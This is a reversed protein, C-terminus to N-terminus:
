LVQASTALLDSHMWQEGARRWQAVTLVQPSHPTTLLAAVKPKERLGAPGADRSTCISRQVVQRSDRCSGRLRWSSTQIGDEVPRNARPSATSSLIDSVNRNEPFKLTPRFDSADGLVSLFCVTCLQYKHKNDPVAM